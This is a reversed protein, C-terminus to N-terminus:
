CELTSRYWRVTMEAITPWDFARAVAMGAQGLADLNRDSLARELAAHLSDRDGPAFLFGERGERVLEGVPGFAPAVVARAYSLAWLLIGSTLLSHYPLVVLDAAGLYTPLEADAIYGLDIRM